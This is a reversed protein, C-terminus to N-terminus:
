PQAESGDQKWDVRRDRDPDAHIERDMAHGEARARERRRRAAREDVAAAPDDRAQPHRVPLASGRGHEGQSGCETCSYLVGDREFVRRFRATM